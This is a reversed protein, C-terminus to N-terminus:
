EPDGDDGWYEKAYPESNVYILGCVTVAEDKEAADYGSYGGAEAGCVV